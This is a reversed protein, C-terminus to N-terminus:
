SVCDSLEVIKNVLLYVTSGLNTPWKEERYLEKHLEEARSIAERVKDDSYHETSISKNNKGCLPAKADNKLRKVFHDTKTYAQSDTVAYKYDDENVDVHHLLLWVEFFPNSIAYGYNKSECESLAKDWNDRNGDPTTNNDVDAVIWFEDNPHNDLDYEEKKEKKFKDIKEVLQYPKSQSLQKCQDETRLEKPISLIEENVSVFQIKSKVSDFKTAIMRFYEEETVQGECSIFIIKDSRQKYSKTISTEHRNFLIAM